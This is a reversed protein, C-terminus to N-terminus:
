IGFFVIKAGEKEFELELIARYKEDFNVNVGETSYYQKNVSNETIYTYKGKNSSFAVVAGRCNKTNIKEYVEPSGGVAGSRIPFAETIDERVKKYENLLENFLDIGEKSINLLDGWIGNQGLILSAINTIQSDKPEDLLYHTLFLTSPIWKDFDLPTRCIWGRAPGGYVFINSWKEEPIPINYNYYYPGNNILFYKGASLFGLGVYRHGETIDFDVIAEPCEECLIDVIKTMYIGIQFAYCDARETETNNSNGHFHMPDTCGYQSIADWKFYTVGVEKVLRILEKAFDKYYNSVLCMRHSEETEWIPQPPWDKGKSSILCDKNRNAMNSSVAAAQPDFWLGLKMGYEDLKNKVTKLDYTFREKNVLWDGTKEYWGTDIVFVEIGMNHAIEIEKLIREENMSNLFTKNNWWKNREQYAWTNYFIYPKRSESNLTMFKLVFERYAKSLEEENGIVAGFEFWVSEFSNNEYLLQSTYYNGKVAEVAIQFDKNLHFQLFSDPVQSGHEYAILFSFDDSSEVIMPGMVKLENEFDKAKIDIESLCFSHIKENFESFRIEKYSSFDDGKLSLYKINDIGQDKTLNYVESSILKYQFRVIASEESIRLKIELKLGPVNSVSGIFKYQSIKSKLALKESLVIDKLMCTIEKHNIEVIPPHILFSKQEKPLNYKWLYNDDNFEISFYKNNIKDM